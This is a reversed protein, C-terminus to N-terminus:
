KSKLEFDVKVNKEGNEDPESAVEVTLTSKTNYKEPIYNAGERAAEDRALEQDKDFKGASSSSADPLKKFASIFVKHQGTNPGDADDFKYQGNRIVTTIRRGAEGSDGTSEFSITGQEIPNGDFTVTGTVSEYAGDSSCGTLYGAFLLGLLIPTFGRTRIM